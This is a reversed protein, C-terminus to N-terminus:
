QLPRWERPSPSEVQVPGQSPSPKAIPKWQRQTSLPQSKTEAQNAPAAAQSQPVPRSLRGAMAHRWHKSTPRAGPAASMNRLTNAIMARKSVDAVQLVSEEIQEPPYGHLQRSLVRYVMLGLKFNDQDASAPLGKSKDDDWDPTTMPATTVTQNRLIFSDCDLLFIDGSPGWLVNAYSIDGVVIERHHLAMVAAAFRELLSVREVDNPLSVEGWAPKPPTALYMFSREQGALGGAGFYFAPQVRPMLFGTPRGRGDEVIELPWAAWEHIAKGELVLRDRLAVLGELVSSDVLASTPADYEKYVLSPYGPLDFVTGQGGAGLPAGVQLRSRPIAM